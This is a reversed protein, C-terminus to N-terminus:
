GAPGVLESAHVIQVRKILKPYEEELVEFTEPHPHGIGIARGKREATRVLLRVQGRITEKDEVHDLFVDREGYTVQLLAASPRCVSKPATRSDIFFLGRKKLVTFIQYMKTSESTMRSGMHNNVGVIFPVSDIDDELIKLMTDPDQSMLLGGPGPKVKPYEFPEMPLHLMVELGKQRAYAAIERQHPSQPLISFTIGSDLSAYDNAISRDYGMDDIILAVRPLKDSAVPPNEPENKEVVPKEHEPPDSPEAQEAPEDVNENKYSGIHTGKKGHGSKEQKPFIEYRTVHKENKPPFFHRFAVGTGVVM